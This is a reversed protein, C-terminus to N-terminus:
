GKSNFSPKPPGASAASSSILLFAFVQAFATVAFRWSFLTPEMTAPSGFATEPTFLQKMAM